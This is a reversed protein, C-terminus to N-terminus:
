PWQIWIDIIRSVFFNRSNSGAITSPTGGDDPSSTVSELLVFFIPQLDNPFRCPNLAPVTCSFM